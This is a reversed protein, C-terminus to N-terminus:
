ATEEPEMEALYDLTKRAALADIVAIAFGAHVLVYDGVVAEPAFALNVLKIIGGFAVRGQRTLDDDGKISQIQGPIALCM